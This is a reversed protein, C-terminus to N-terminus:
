KSCRGTTKDSLCSESMYCKMVPILSLIAVYVNWKLCCKLWCVAHSLCVSLHIGHVFFELTASRRAVVVLVYRYSADGSILVKGRVLGVRHLMLLLLVTHVIGGHDAWLAAAWLLTQVINLLDTRSQTRPVGVVWDDQWHVLRWLHEQREALPTQRWGWVLLQLCLLSIPTAVQNM